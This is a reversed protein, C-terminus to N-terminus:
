QCELYPLLQKFLDQRMEEIADFDMATVYYSELKDHYEKAQRIFGVAADIGKYFRDRASAINKENTTIAAKNYLQDFNLIRRYKIVDLSASYDFLHNSMDILVSGSQPIVIIDILQPDFPNHYVEANVGMLNLTNLAYDFLYKVGTGPNGKVAFLCYSNDIISEIKSVIGGPTLAAAFLHRPEKQENNLGSVFDQTLALINRNVAEHDQVEEYYSEWEKWAIQSEQLRSYALKFCKSITQTLEIIASRHKIIANQQWYAGLNIIEDVVGPYRPDVIHPSTGDLLCIQQGIVVGDLSHNDSSCWHYELDYGRTGFDEGMKKIFNSKGVGPGGKLIIKREVEPPAMYDYFSYFGYCTNGGPFVNRIQPM